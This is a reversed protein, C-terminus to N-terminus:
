KPPKDAEEWGWSSWVLDVLLNEGCVALYEQNTIEHYNDAMALSPLYNIRPTRYGDALTHVFLSGGIIRLIKWDRNRANRIM